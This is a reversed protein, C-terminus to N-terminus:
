QDARGQSMPARQVIARQRDMAPFQQTDNRFNMQRIIPFKVLLPVKRAAIAFYAAFDRHGSESDGESGVQEEGGVITGAEHHM